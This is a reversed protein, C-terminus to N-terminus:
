KNQFAVEHLHGALLSVFLGNIQARLDCLEELADREREADLHRELEVREHNAEQSEIRTRCVKTAM